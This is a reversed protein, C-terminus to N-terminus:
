LKKTDFPGPDKCLQYLISFAASILFFAMWPNVFKIAIVLIIAILFKGIALSQEFFVSIALPDERV